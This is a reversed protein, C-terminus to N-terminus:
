LIFVYSECTGNENVGVCLVSVCFWLMIIIIIFFWTGEIKFVVDKFWIMV